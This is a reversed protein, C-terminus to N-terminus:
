RCTGIISGKHREFITCADLSLRRVHRLCLVWIDLNQPPPQAAMRRPSSTSLVLVTTTGWIDLNQPTAPSAREPRAATTAVGPGLIFTLM